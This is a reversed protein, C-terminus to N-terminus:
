AAAVAFGAAERDADDEARKAVFHDPGDGHGLWRTELPGAQPSAQAEAGERPLPRAVGFGSLALRGRASTSIEILPTTRPLATGVPHAYFRPLRTRSRSSDRLLSWLAAEGLSVLETVRGAAAPRALGLDRTVVITDKFRPGLAARIDAEVAAPLVVIAEPVADLQQKLVGADFPGHLAVTTGSILPAAVTAVFGAASVPAFTAILSGRGTLGSIASLALADSIVQAHSRGHPTVGEATRDLTIVATAGAATVPLPEPSLEGDSWDDLAVVGAPPRPGFACVFRLGYFRSAAIRAEESPRFEAYRNVTVIARANVAEAAQQMESADAVVSVPCPVYGAAIIGLLASVGDVSNPMAVLVVDGPKLGLAAIQRAFRTTMAGLEAITTTKATLDSWADIDPADSFSRRNPRAKVATDLLADLTLHGWAGQLRREGSRNAESM